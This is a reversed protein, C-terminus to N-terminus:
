SSVLRGHLATCRREVGAFGHERATALAGDLLSRARDHDDADDREMLMVAWELKTRATWYNTGAREAMTRAQAFDAEAQEYDALVTRAMGTALAIPGADAPGSRTWQDTFPALLSVIARAAALHGTRAAADACGALMQAWVPDVWLHPLEVVFDDLIARAEDGRDSAALLLALVARFGPLGPNEAVRQAVLDCIEAERGELRRIGSLLGGYFAIADPQAADLGLQLAANAHQEASVYDGVFVAISSRYVETLWRMTPDCVANQTDLVVLAYTGIPRAWHCNDPSTRTRANPAGLDLV